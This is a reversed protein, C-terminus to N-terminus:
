MGDKPVSDLQDPTTALTIQQIPQTGEISVEWDQAVNQTKLNYTKGTEGQHQNSAATENTIIREYSPENGRYSTVKIKFYADNIQTKGSYGSVAFKSPSGKISSKVYVDGGKIIKKVFSIRSILKPDFDVRMVGYSQAMALRNLKSKWISYGGRRKRIKIDNANDLTYLKGNRSIGWKADDINTIEIASGTVSRFDLRWADGNSFWVFYEDEQAVASLPLQPMVDEDIIGATILGSRMGVVGQRSCYLVDANVRAAGGTYSFNQEAERIYVVAPHNAYAVLPRRNVGFIYIINEFIEIESIPFGVDYRWAIPFRGIRRIESFILENDSYAVGFGAQMYKLGRINAPASKDSGDDSVSTQKAHDRKPRFTVTITNMGTPAIVEDFFTWDGLLDIDRSYFWIRSIGSREDAPFDTSVPLINITLTVTDLSGLSYGTSIGNVKVGLVEVNSEDGEDNLVTAGILYTLADTPSSNDIASSHLNLKDGKSYGLRKPNLNSATTWTPNVGDTVIIRNGIELWDAKNQNWEIKGDLRPVISQAMASVGFTDDIRTFNDGPQFIGTRFDINLCQSAKGPPLRLRDLAPAIGGFNRVVLNPM